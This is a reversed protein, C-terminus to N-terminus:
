WNSSRRHMSGEVVRWLEQGVVGRGGHGYGSAAGGTGAAVVVSESFGLGGHVVVLRSGAAFAVVDRAGSGGRGPLNMNNPPGAAVACRLEGNATRWESLAFFHRRAHAHATPEVTASMMSRATIRTSSAVSSTNSASSSRTTSFGTSRFSVAAPPPTPAVSQLEVSCVWFKVDIFLLTSSGSVRLVQLVAPGLADLNPEAAPRALGSQSSPDLETAPWLYLRPSSTESLQFREVVFSPGVHYSATARDRSIDTPLPSSPTHSTGASPGRVLRIGEPSTLESFDNWSYVRAIDRTVVVFWEPNTPHQFASRPGSTTTNGDPGVAGPGPSVPRPPASVSPAALNSASSTGDTSGGALYVEGSQIKWLQATYRGSLFVRDGAANVLIRAVAGEFRQDLVIAPKTLSPTAAVRALPVEFDAVLIRAGDDASIVRNRSEVLALSVISAGRGHQYLTGIAEADVTSFLVVDGNSNGAVVLKGDVSPIVPSTIKPEGTTQLVRHSPRPPFLSALDAESSGISSERESTGKRVLAAPAWVRGQRGRVDVFRLGDASFAVRRIAEDLPHNSRYIINLTISAGSHAQELEFVELIGQNSGIVVTRGDPSLALSSAYVDPRTVQLEMTSYDFVCLSGDQFAVLLAPIEPNPSFAMANIGNNTVDPECTGLLQLELANWIFIPHIRYGVALLVGEPATLFSVRTPPDPPIPIPLSSYVEPEGFGGVDKWSISESEETDLNRHFL